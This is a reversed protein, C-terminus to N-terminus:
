YPLPGKWFDYQGSPFFVVGGGNSAAANIANQVATRDDIGDNAIAGYTTVNHTILPTPTSSNGSDYGSSSWDVFRSSKPNNTFDNWLEHDQGNVSIPFFFLISLLTVLRVKKSKIWFPVCM